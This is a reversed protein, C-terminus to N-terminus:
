LKTQASMKLIRSAILPLCLVGKVTTKIGCKFATQVAQGYTKLLTSFHSTDLFTAGVIDLLASWDECSLDCVSSVGDPKTYCDPHSAFGKNLIVPCTPAVSGTFSELLKKQLCLRVASVWKQGKESFKSIEAGFKQCFKGGYGIAYGDTGCAVSSDICTQYFDCSTSSPVCGTGKFFSQSNIPALCLVLAFILIKLASAM